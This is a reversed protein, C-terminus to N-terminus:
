QQAITGYMYEVVALPKMVTRASHKHEVIHSFIYEVSTNQSWLKRYVICLSGSQLHCYNNMYQVILAGSHVQDSNSM